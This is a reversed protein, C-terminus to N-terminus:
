LNTNGTNTPVLVAKVRSDAGNRAQAPPFTAM